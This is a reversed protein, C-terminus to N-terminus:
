INYANYNIDYNDINNLKEVLITAIALGKSDGLRVLCNFVEIEKKGEWSFLINEIQKETLESALTYIENKM